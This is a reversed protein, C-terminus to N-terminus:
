MDMSVTAGLSVTKGQLQYGNNILRMMLVQIFIYISLSFGYELVYSKAGVPVTIFVSCTTFITLFM